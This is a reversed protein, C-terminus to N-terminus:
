PRDVEVIVRAGSGPASEISFRGGVAKARETMSLLGWRHESAAEGGGTPTFGRGNDAVVLRVLAPELDLSVIAHSAHAHKVVNTLAEQAIRFLAHEILAPLRPNPDDGAISIDIPALSSLHRVWARLASMPGHDDLMPPRLDAMVDRVCGVTDEILSQLFDLRWAVGPVAGDVEMKLLNFNIGLATLTQGVRDHLELALRGREATEAEALRSAFARVLAADRRAQDEARKVDTVDLTIGGLAEVQGDGSRLPFLVTHFFGPGCPTEVTQEATVAAERRFVEKGISKFAEASQPPFVEDVSRGVVQDSTQGVTEEWARNVVRLRGDAGVVWIPLPAFELLAVLLERTERLAHEAEVRETIDAFTTYVRWPRDEGPRLQPVATVDLWRCRLAPPKLVGVVGRAPKGTRLAQATPLDDPAYASGDERVRRWREDRQLHIGRIEDLTVDLPGLAAPNADLIAGEGDQSVVGLPMREFILRFQQESRALAEEERKRATIDRVVAHVFPTGAIVVGCTSLEVPVRTGDKKRLSTELAINGGNLLDRFHTHFLDLDTEEHLDPIRMRLLEERTYASIECAARNVYVFVARADVLFIADRSGEVIERFWAADTQSM